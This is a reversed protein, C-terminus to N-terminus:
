AWPESGGNFRPLPDTGARGLNSFRAFHADLAAKLENVTSALGKQGIVNRTERPDRELDYFEDGSHPAFRVILKWRGRRIMRANGYECFWDSRAEPKRGALLPLVSRGPSNRKSADEPSESIQAADLLTQFLDCHSMPVDSVKGADLKGPWRMLSPVRISEEYFNQPVTANGKFYLGHHGNMHGHDSTYVVLTNELEAPSLADLVRGVQEDLFSVAAYYQSLRRRRETEKTPALGPLKTAKGIYKEKPIDSFKADAYSDVLREPHDTFPSHTDVYGVFLFFPRTKDRRFLFETAKESVFASRQGVFEVPKGNEMFKCVGRHPYQDKNEGLYYDFGPKPFWSAGCHWKGVFGTQYGASQFLEALTREGSLGVDPFKPENIWDHIGHQSPLTGTWFSARAPSCVPCPTYAATMRTGASALWDLTPTRLEKAGFCNGAWPGHDDTLFVLVNPRSM